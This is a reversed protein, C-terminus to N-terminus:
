RSRARAPAPAASSEALARWQDRTWAKVDVVPAASTAAALELAIIERRWMPATALAARMAENTRPQGFLHRGGPPFESRHRQWWEKVAATNPLPLHDEPQIAPPPEDDAVEEGVQTEGPTALGGEIAVGTIASLAEGALKAVEPDSTAEVLVDASEQDGAFGLAWLANRRMGSDQALALVVSRDQPRRSSALLALPFRSAEGGRMALLRCQDWTAQLGLVVGTSLAERRVEPLETALADQVLGVLARDPAARLARLAPARTPSDDGRLIPEVKEKTWGPEGVRLLDLAVGRLEPASQHWLQAVRSLDTRPALRLARAIAARAPPEGKVLAAIVADQHDGAGATVDEAQVLVWAAAAIRGPEDDALAPVLLRDAVPRGGLLLGDLHALLRAEPGVGVDGLTYNAAVLAGEWEGWLFAAEELHEELLDWDIPRLATAV